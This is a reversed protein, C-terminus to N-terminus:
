IKLTGVSTCRKLNSPTREMAILFSTLSGWM